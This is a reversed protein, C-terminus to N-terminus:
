NGMNAPDMFTALTVAAILAIENYLDGEGPLYLLPRMMRHDMGAIDRGAEDRTLYGPM